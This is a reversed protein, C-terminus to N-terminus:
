YHTKTIELLDTLDNKLNVLLLNKIIVAMFFFIVIIVSKSTLNLGKNWKINNLFQHTM